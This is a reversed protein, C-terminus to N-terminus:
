ICDDGRDLELVKEHEWVSIGCGHFSLKGNGKEYLLIRCYKDKPSQSIESLMKDEHNM